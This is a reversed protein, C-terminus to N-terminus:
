EEKSGRLGRSARMDFLALNMMLDDDAENQGCRCRVFRYDQLYDVARFVLRHHTFLSCMWRPLNWVSQEYARRLLERRIESAEVGLNTEGCKNLIAILLICLDSLSAETIPKPTNV